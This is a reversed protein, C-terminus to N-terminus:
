NVGAVQGQENRIVMKPRNIAEAIQQNTAAIVQNSNIIAESSQATIMAVQQLGQAMSMSLEGMFQVLPPVQGDEQMDPDGMAVMPDSSAKATIRTKVVEAQIEEQRVALEQSRYQIDAAKIQNEQAKLQNAQAKLDNEAQTNQLEGQAAELEQALQQIIQQDQQLQAQVQPPIQQQQKKQSEPDRLEPPLGREVAEAIKDASPWDQTRIIMPVAPVMTPGLAQLMQMQAEAAEQRKTTYSPGTTIAINYTGVSLDHNKTEGTFEDKYPQNIPIQYTSGDEKKGAVKRSADYTKPMLDAMIHGGVRQGRSMNDHIHFTAVDGERQRALIAKGSKENSAQGLSAPYIGSLNYFNQQAQQVMVVYGNLNTANDSRQPPPVQAGDVVSDYPLYAYNVINATDWIGQYRGIARPDAIYPSRPALAMAETAANTWYNMQRQAPIMREVLGTIITKGDINVEQGVVKVYPIYCGSWESTELVERATILYRKVKPEAVERVDYNSLDKPKERGIKGTKKNRYLSYKKEYVKWFEAVRVMEKTAWGPAKDGIGALDFKDYQRDYEQNFDKVPMMIVQLLRKRELQRATPVFPDDYVTFPNEVAMVKIIQDFSKDNEYETIYRWYGWGIVCQGYFATDYAVEADSQTQIDRALDELKEATEKDGDENPVFRTQTMNMRADNAVQNIFNPIQNYSDCPRQFGDLRRTKLVDADWQADGGMAFQLAQLGRERNSSEADAALKAFDIAEQVIKSDVGPETVIEDAPDLLAIGTRM